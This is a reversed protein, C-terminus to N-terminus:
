AIMQKKLASYADYRAHKERIVCAERIGGDVMQAVRRAVNEDIKAVTFQRKPKGVAARIREILQIVIQGQQHAFMLADIIDAETAEDAGGEVMVIADKSVAVVLEIDAKESQEFTPYAVFEG